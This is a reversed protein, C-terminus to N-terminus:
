YFSLLTGAAVERRNARSGLTLLLPYLECTGSGMAPVLLLGLIGIVVRVEFVGPTVERLHHPAVRGGDAASESVAVILLVIFGNQERAAEIATFYETQINITSVSM